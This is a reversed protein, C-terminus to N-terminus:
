RQRLAELKEPYLRTSPFDIDLLNYKDPSRGGDSEPEAKEIWDAERVRVNWDDGHEALKETVARAADEPTDAEVYVTVVYTAFSPQVYSAAFLADLDLGLEGKLEEPQKEIGFTYEVEYDNM